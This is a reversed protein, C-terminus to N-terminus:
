FTYALGGRFTIGAGPYYANSAFGKYGTSAYNKDFLNETGLYVRLGEIFPPTYDIFLNVITYDDLKDGSNATDGGLYCTGIYKVTTYVSIDMPLDVRVFGGAMHEPVLPIDKGDNAGNSFEADTYTYNGGFEAPGIQYTLALEAGNRTTEDMNENIFTAPNYAIEDKMAIHFVSLDARLGEALQAQTGAEVTWGTEPDLDKYLQDGYGYYSVMEDVFPYRYVTGGKAYIKSQNALTKVLSIDFATGSQTTNDDVTTMGFSKVTADNWAKEGRLGAGLILSDTLNFADTAYAGLTQRTVRADGSKISQAEDSYRDIKFTDNYYDIGILLRNFHTGFENDFSVNPLVSFSDITLDSYSFWSNMDSTIEKRSFGIPVEVHTRGLDTSLGAAANYYRSELHDNNNVSSRPDDDMQAKTLGGPLQNNVDQVSADGWVEAQDSLHWIGNGSASDAHFDSNNRYGDSEYHEASLTGAAQDSGGNISARAAITNYSAADASVNGSFGNTPVPSIINVVGAIANNGYLTSEAGRLVEIRGIDAMPFQLWNISAMDPRNVRRGNKLILIRGMSNEGFGRMVMEGNAPTASSSRFYIGPVTELADIVTVANQEALDESTIVSLNAPITQAQSNDRSSLIQMEPLITPTEQAMIFGAPGLLAIVIISVLKKM